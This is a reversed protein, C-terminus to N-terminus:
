EEEGGLFYFENMMSLRVKTILDDVKYNKVFAKADEGHDFPIKKVEKNSFVGKEIAYALFEPKAVHDPKITTGKKTVNVYDAKAAKIVAEELASDMSRNDIVGTKHMYDVLNENERTHGVPFNLNINSLYELTVEKLRSQLDM